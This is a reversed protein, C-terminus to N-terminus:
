VCSNLSYLIYIDHKVAYICTTPILRYRCIIQMSIPLQYVFVSYIYIDINIASCGFSIMTLCKSNTTIGIIIVSVDSWYVALSPKINHGTLVDVDLMMPWVHNANWKGAGVLPM